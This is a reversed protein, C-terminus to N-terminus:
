PKPNLSLHRPQPKNPNLPRFVFFYSFPFLNTMPWSSSGRRVLNGPPDPPVLEEDEAPRPALPASHGKPTETESGLPDRVPASMLTGGHDPWLPPPRM